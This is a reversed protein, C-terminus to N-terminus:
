YYYCYYYCIQKNFKTSKLLKTWLLGTVKSTQGVLHRKKARWFRPLIKSALIKYAILPTFVYPFRRNFASCNLFFSWVRITYCHTARKCLWKATSVFSHLRQTHTHTHTHTHKTSKCTVTLYIFISLTVFSHEHPLNHWRCCHLNCVDSRFYITKCVIPVRKVRWM